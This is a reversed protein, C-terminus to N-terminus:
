DIPRADVLYIKYESAMRTYFVNENNFKNLLSIM